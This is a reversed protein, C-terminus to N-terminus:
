ENRVIKHTPSIVAIVEFVSGFVDYDRIINEQFYIFKYIKIDINSSLIVM